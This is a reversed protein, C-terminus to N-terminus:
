AMSHALLHSICAEVGNATVARSCDETPPGPCRTVGWGRILPGQGPILGPQPAGSLELGKWRPMQQSGGTPQAPLVWLVQGVM